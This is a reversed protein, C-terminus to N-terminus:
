EASSGRRDLVEAMEVVGVAVTVDVLKWAGLEGGGWYRDLSSGSRGSM